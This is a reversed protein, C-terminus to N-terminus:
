FVCQFEIQNYVEDAQCYYHLMIHSRSWRYTNSVNVLPMLDSVKFRKLVTVRHMISDAKCGLGIWM